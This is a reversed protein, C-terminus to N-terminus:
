SSGDALVELAQAGSVGYVTCAQAPAELQAGVDQLTPARASGCSTCCSRRREAPASRPRRCRKCAGTTRCLSVWPLSGVLCWLAARSMSALLCRWRGEGRLARQVLGPKIESTVAAGGPLPPVLARRRRRGRAVRPAGVQLANVALQGEGPSRPRFDRLPPRQLALAAYALARAAVEGALGRGAPAGAVRDLLPAADSEALGNLLALGRAALLEV